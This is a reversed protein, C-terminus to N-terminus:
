QSLPVSNTLAAISRHAYVLLTMGVETTAALRGVISGDFREITPEALLAQVDVPEVRDVIRLLLDVREPPIVILMM